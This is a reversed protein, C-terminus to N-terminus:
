RLKVVIVRTRCHPHYPPLGLSREFALAFEAPGDTPKFSILPWNAMLAGIDGDLSARVHADIQRTVKGMSIIRGNIWRCFPSTHNDLVAVAQFALIGAQKAAEGSGINFWRYAWQDAVFPIWSATDQGLEARLADEWEQRSSLAQGAARSAAAGLSSASPTRPGASTLFARLLDQLAPLRTTVRGFMLTNLDAVAAPLLLPAQTQSLPERVAKAGDDMLSLAGQRVLSLAAPSLPQSARRQLAALFAVLLDQLLRDRRDQPLAALADISPSSPLEAALEDLAANLDSISDDIVRQWHLELVPLLLRIVAQVEPIDKEKSLCCLVHKAAQFARDDM